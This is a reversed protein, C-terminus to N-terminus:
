SESYVPTKLPRRILKGSVPDVDALLVTSDLDSPSLEGMHYLLINKGEFNMELSKIASDKSLLYAILEEYTRVLSGNISRRNNECICIFDWIM